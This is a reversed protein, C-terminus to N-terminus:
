SNEPLSAFFVALDTLVKEALILSASQEADREASLAGYPEDPFDFATFSEATGQHAIKGNRDRVLYSSSLTLRARTSVDDVRVGVNTQSKNLQLELIYPGSTGTKIGGRETMAQSFLFGIRGDIPTLSLTEFGRRVTTNEAYLPQFGACATLLFLFTISVLPKLHKM